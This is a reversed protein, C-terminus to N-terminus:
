NRTDAMHTPLSEKKQPVPTSMEINTILADTYASFVEATVVSAAHKSKLCLGSVLKKTGVM